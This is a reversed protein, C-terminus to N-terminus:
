FLSLPSNIYFVFIRGSWFKIHTKYLFLVPYLRTNCSSFTSAPHHLPQRTPSQIPIELRCILSDTTQPKTDSGQLTTEKSLFSYEVNEMNDRGVWTNLDTTNAIALFAFCFSLTISRDRAQSASFGDGDFTENGM